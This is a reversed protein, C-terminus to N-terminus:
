ILFCFNGVDWVPLHNPHLSFIEEVWGFNKLDCPWNTVSNPKYEPQTQHLSLPRPCWRNLAYDCNKQKRFNLGVPEGGGSALRAMKEPLHEPARASAFLARHAM